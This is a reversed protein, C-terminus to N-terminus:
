NANKKRRLKLEPDSARLYLPAAAHIAAATRWALGAELRAWAREALAAPPVEDLDDRVRWGGEAAAGRLAELCTKEGCLWAEGRRAGPGLAERVRAPLDEARVVCEEIIRAPANKEIGYLAAFLGESYASRVALVLPTTGPKLNSTQPQAAEQRLQRFAGWALAEFSPVGVLAVGGGWALAKAAALGIRLGTWSGPGLSVAVAGLEPVALRAEGLLERIMPALAVGHRAGDVVRREALLGGPGWMAASMARGSTEIALLPKGTM